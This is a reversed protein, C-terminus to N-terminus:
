LKGFEGSGDVMGLAAATDFIGNLYAVAEFFITRLGKDNPHEDFNREAREAKELADKYLKRVKDVASEQKIVRAPKVIVAATDTGYWKVIAATGEVTPFNLFHSKGCYELAVECADGEHAITYKKAPTERRDIIDYVKM